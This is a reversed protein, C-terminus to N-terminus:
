KALWAEAADADRMFRVQPHKAHSKALAAFGDSYDDPDSVVVATRIGHEVLAQVTAEALGTRVDFFRASVDDETLLLGAGDDCLAIADKIDNIGEIRIGEDAAMRFARAM